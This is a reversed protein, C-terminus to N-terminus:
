FNTSTFMSNEYSNCALYLAGPNPTATGVISDIVHTIPALNYYLTTIALEAQATAGNVLPFESINYSITFHSSPYYKGGAYVATGGPIASFNVFDKTWLQSVTLQTNNIFSLLNVFDTTGKRPYYVSIYRAIREVMDDTFSDSLFRVGLMRAAYNALTRDYYNPDRLNKLQNRPEVVNAQLVENVSASLGDWLPKDKFTSNLMNSTDTQISQDFCTNIGTQNIIVPITCKNALKTYPAGLCVLAFPIGTDTFIMINGITFDDTSDQPFVLMLTLVDFTMSTQQFVIGDAAGVYTLTGQADTEAGTATYGATTGVNFQTLNILPPLAQALNTTLLALGQATLTVTTAM